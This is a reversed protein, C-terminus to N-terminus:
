LHVLLEDLMRIPLFETGNSIWKLAVSTLTNGEAAM